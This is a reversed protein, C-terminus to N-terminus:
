DALFDSAWSTKNWTCFVLVLVKATANALECKVSIIFSHIFSSRFDTVITV